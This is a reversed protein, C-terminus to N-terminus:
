FEVPLYIGIRFQEVFSDEAIRVFRADIFQVGRGALNDLRIVVPGPTLGDLSVFLTGIGGLRRPFQFLNKSRSVLPADKAEEDLRICMLPALEIWFLAHNGPMVMWFSTILIQQIEGDNLRDKM